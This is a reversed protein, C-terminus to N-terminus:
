GGGTLTGPRRVFEKMAALRGRFEIRDDPDPLKEVLNRAAEIVDVVGAVIAELGSLGSERRFSDAIRRLNGRSSGEIPRLGARLSDVVDLPISAIESIADAGVGVVVLARLTGRMAPSLQPGVVM